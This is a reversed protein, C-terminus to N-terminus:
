SLVKKFPPLQLPLDCQILNTYIIDQIPLQNLFYHSHILNNLIKGLM